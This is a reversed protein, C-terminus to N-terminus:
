APVLNSHASSLRTRDVSVCGTTLNWVHSECVRAYYAKALALLVISMIGASIALGLGKLKGIVSMCRIAAQFVSIVM